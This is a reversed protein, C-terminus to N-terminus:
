GGRTVQQGGAARRSRSYFAPRSLVEDFMCRLERAVGSAEKSRGDCEGDDRTKM